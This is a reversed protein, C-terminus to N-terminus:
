RGRTHKPSDHTHSLLSLPPLRRWLLALVAAGTLIAALMPSLGAHWGMYVAVGSGLAFTALAVERKYAPAVWTCATMILAAALAAGLSILVNEAVLFWPAFCHGSLMQESPCFAEVGRYLGVATFLAAYWATTAAPLVLIWRLARQM